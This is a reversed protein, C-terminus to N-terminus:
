QIITSQITRPTQVYFANKMTWMVQELQWEGVWLRVTHEATFHLM